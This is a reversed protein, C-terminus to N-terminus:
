PNFCVTTLLEGAGDRQTVVYFRTGQYSYRSRISQQVGEMRRLPNEWRKIEQVEPDDEYGWDGRRHRDIAAAVVWESIEALVDALVELRGLELLCSCGGQEPTSANVARTTVPAVAAILAGSAM